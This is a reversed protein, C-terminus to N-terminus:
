QPKVHRESSIQSPEALYYANRPHKPDCVFLRLGHIFAVSSIHCVFCVFVNLSIKEIVNHVITGENHRGLYVIVPLVNLPSEFECSGGVEVFILNRQQQRPSRILGHDVVVDAEVWWLVLLLRPAYIM